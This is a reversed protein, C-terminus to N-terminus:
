YLSLTIATTTGHMNECKPHITFGQWVLQISPFTTVYEENSLHPESLDQVTLTHSLITSNDNCILQWVTNFYSDTTIFFGQGTKSSLSYALITPPSPHVRGM